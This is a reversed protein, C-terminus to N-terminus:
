KMWGEGHPLTSGCLPEPLPGNRGEPLPVGSDRVARWINELVLQPDSLFEVNTFRLVRYHNVEFWRTRAADYLIEEDGGHQGGDLEVILKAAACYFDAVYPGIAQQRRFRVGAMQKRRLQAWLRRESETMEARLERAREHKLIRRRPNHQPRQM